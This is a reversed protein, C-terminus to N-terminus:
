CGTGGSFAGAISGSIPPLGLIADGEGIGALLVRHNELAEISSSLGLTAVVGGGLLLGGDTLCQADLASQCDRITPPIGTAASGVGLAEGASYFPQGNLQVAISTTQRVTGVAVEGTTTDLAIVTSEETLDVTIVTADLVAGVGTSALAAAGLGVGIEAWTSNSWTTPNWWSLGLPDVGNLPQDSVYAYPENTLSVLPDVATFQATGPDYYRHQLYLLGSESDTYSGAYGFPNTATGTSGALNGYPDYTYTAAVSGSSSTLARTSGHQDQLFYLVTSGSIQELPEGGLGYVYDTSGDVLLLPIGDPGSPGWTFSETTHGTKKSMRLGDGNYAYTTSGYTTMEGLENYGLSSSGNPTTIATRDGLNNYTFTSKAPELAVLAAALSGSVSFTATRSGTTGAAGAAQDALGGTTTAGGAQTVESTMQSPASWSGAASSEAAEAFLLEDNSNTTTMSPATVSQGTTTTGSSTVDVPTSPNVGRYVIVSAAKAFTKSFTVIVSTDGAQATRRYLSLKVNSAGTGSSYSGIATYGSPTSKISQSGPLTVALVIQDNAKVGAPLTITLSSGTGADGSSATGVKSITSTLSTAQHAASFAETAGPLQTPDGSSDYGYNGNTASTLRNAPDYGYTQSTPGPTGTDTESQVQSDANYTYTFSALPNSPNSNPADATTLLNDGADYTSVATTANPFASGTSNGDADYSFNTTHSLWDTVSKKRGTGDYTQTVTHNGPYTISTVENDPDYGYSVTAGAGNTVSTLRELSDFTYNTTGTGDTMTNRNGDADYGYSVNPAVAYGSGPNSYVISIQENAGDYGYTATGGNTTLSTLNGAADYSSTSTGSSPQIQEIKEGRSNVFDITTQGGADTTSTCYVTGALPTQCVGTSPAIDYADTTTSAASTGYGATVTLKRSDPDYTTKTVNGSPQTVQTENGGGDYQYTTTNGRPDTASTVESDADYAWTSTSAIRPQGAAPCRVGAAYANPSTECVKRGLQDYVFATTNAAPATPHTTVSAVDGYSDYTYDIVHGAPDTIETVEGANSDGYTYTTTETPSGGAGAIVKTLVNGHTDYTYTTVIGAPDTITLPENFSNYTYTTTENRANQSTLLNGASDYTANSVHNDPDSISTKGYTNQDYTYTWTGAATTGSGKTVSLMAGNTYNEVTVDGYPDTITTTGGASGFNNGSYAFQTVLSSPDTQRTVRGSTDYVNTTVGMRPNTVTLLLHNSDYGFSTVRNLPDTVSTLNGAGDYGYYTTQGVPDAAQSVFGNTGYTLTVTRSEPDTVTTLQGSGNYALQTSYGNLDTIATLRGSSGFSYTTTQQRVFTWTGDGNKVLTSDAYPPITYTGGAVPQAVVQSGDAETITVSGDGNVVLRADYSARWGYGFIGATSASLSNYTRTLELGPGRGPVSVDSYSESFNGSACNVPDGACGTPNNVSADGGGLGTATSPPAVPPLGVNFSVSSSDTLQQGDTFTESFTYTETWTGWCVGSTPVTWALDGVYGSTIYNQGTTMWGFSSSTHVVTGCADHVQDTQSNTTPAQTGTISDLLQVNACFAVLQGGSVPDQQTDPCYETTSNGQVVVHTSWTASTVTLQDGQPDTVLPRVAAKGSPPQPYNPPPDGIGTPATTRGGGTAVSVVGAPGAARAKMEHALAARSGAGSGVATSAGGMVLALGLLLLSVGVRSTIAKVGHGGLRVLDARM